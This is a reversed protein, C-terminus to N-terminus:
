AHIDVIEGQFLDLVKKVPELKATAEVEDSQNIISRKVAASPIQETPPAPTAAPVDSLAGSEAAGVSDAETEDVDSGLPVARPEPQDSELAATGQQVPAFIEPTAPQPDEPAPAEATTNGSEEMPTATKEETPADPVLDLLIAWDGSVNQLIELLQLRADRMPPLDKGPVRITLVSNELSLVRCNEWPLNLGRNLAEETMRRFLREAPDPEKGAASLPM